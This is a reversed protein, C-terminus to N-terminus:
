KVVRDRQDLYIPCWAMFCNLATFSWMKFSFSSNELSNTLTLICHRTWHRGVGGGLIRNICNTLTFLHYNGGIKKLVIYFFCHLAVASNRQLVACQLAAVSCRQLAPKSCNQLAAISYHKLTAISCQQKSLKIAHRAILTDDCLARAVPPILTLDLGRADQNCEM